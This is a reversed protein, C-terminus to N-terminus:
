LGGIAKWYAVSVALTILVGIGNMKLDFIIEQLELVAIPDIGSFPEDLLILDPNNERLSELAEEGSRAEYAEYGHSVLATKMVRRIQPEDDVVLVCFRQPLTSVSM